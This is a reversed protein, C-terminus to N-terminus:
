KSAPSKKWPELRVQNRGLAVLRSGPARAVEAAAKEHRCDDPGSCISLADWFCGCGVRIGAAEFGGLPVCLRQTSTLRETPYNSHDVSRESRESPLRKGTPCNGERGVNWREVRGAGASRQPAKFSVWSGVLSMEPALRSIKTSSSDLVLLRPM